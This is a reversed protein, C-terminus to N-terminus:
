LIPCTRFRGRWSRPVYRRWLHAEGGGFHGFEWPPAVPRFQKWFQVTNRVLADTQNRYIWRLESGTCSRSKDGKDKFDLKRGGHWTANKEVVAAMDLQDLIFHAAITFKGTAAWHLGGKCKRRLTESSYVPWDRRLEYTGDLASCYVPHRRLARWFDAQRHSLPNFDDTSGRDRAEEESLSYSDIM